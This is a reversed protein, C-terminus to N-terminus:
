FIQKNIIPSRDISFARLISFRDIRNSKVFKLFNIKEALVVIILDEMSFNKILFVCIVLDAIVM